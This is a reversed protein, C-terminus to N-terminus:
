AILNIHDTVQVIDGENFHPNIGGALMPDHDNERRRTGQTVRIPFTLEAASYGEYYHFDVRGDSRGSVGSKLGFFWSGWSSKEVTSIPFHPIDSYPIEVTDTLSHAFDGLGTGLV